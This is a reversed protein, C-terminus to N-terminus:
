CYYKMDNMIEKPYIRSDNQQTLFPICKIVVMARVKPQIM